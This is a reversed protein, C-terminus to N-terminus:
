SFFYTSKLIEKLDLEGKGPIEPIIESPFREELSKKLQGLPDSEYLKIFEERIFGNMMDVDCPHTWFSDHVAAFDLGNEFMRESTM